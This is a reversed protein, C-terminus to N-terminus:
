FGGALLETKVNAVALLSVMQTLLGLRAADTTVKLPSRIVLYVSEVGQVGDAAREVVQDLRLLSNRYAKDGSGTEVHSITLTAPQDIPSAIDRRVAKNTGIERLDFDHDVTGDTIDEILNPLM